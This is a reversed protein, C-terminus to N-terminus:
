EKKDGNNLEEIFGATIIGTPLAIIAIGAISSVMSIFRGMESVPHMDGYGVTTVSITSWYLADFFNNFISSDVNFMILAAVFIYGLTFLLISVLLYERKKIVNLIIEFHYSYRLIKFVRLAEVLRLIRLLKFTANVVNLYPLISLLDIIAFPTFPYLIFSKLGHKLKLNATFWRFLYDIIFIIACVIDIIPFLPHNEKFMLPIISLIIVFLMLIDYFDYKKKTLSDNKTPEILKFIKEQIKM